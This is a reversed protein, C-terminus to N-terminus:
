VVLVLGALRALFPKSISYFDGKYYYYQIWKFIYIYIFSLTVMVSIISIMYDTLCQATVKLYGITLRLHGM